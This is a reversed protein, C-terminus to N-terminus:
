RNNDDTSAAADTADRRLAARVDDTHEGLAPAAFPEPGPTRTFKIARAFGRYRGARTHEFEAIMQESQVQPEDFM